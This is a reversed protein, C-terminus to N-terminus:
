QTNSIESLFTRTAKVNHTRIISVGNLYAFAEAIIGRDERQRIEGKLFSKRSVGLLIPCELESLENLRAIIEYSYKPISSVFHGMGPDIIINKAPIGNNTAYEIRESLFEKLTAIVDSYKKNNITTRASNDKSYMLIIKANHKSVSNAMKKDARLATIDNIYQVGLNLAEKAVKSKYTDLSIPISVEKIIKELSPMLRELEEEENVNVSGPGSAECGIDIIDAGNSELEKAKIVADAINNFKGGDSFSDPTLNLIGMIKPLPM